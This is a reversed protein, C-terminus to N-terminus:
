ASDEASEYLRVIQERMGSLPGDPATDYLLAKLQEDLPLDYLLAKLEADRQREAILARLRELRASLEADLEARLEDETM